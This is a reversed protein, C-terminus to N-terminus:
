HIRNKKPQHNIFSGNNLKIEFSVGRQISPPIIKTSISTLISEILKYSSSTVETKEKETWVKLKYEGPTDPNKIGADKSIIIEVSEENGIKVPTKITLIKNSTDIVVSKKLDIRNITILNKDIDNPLKTYSPFKIYIEDGESM